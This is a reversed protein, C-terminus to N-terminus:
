LGPSDAKQVKLTESDLFLGYLCCTGRPPQAPLSSLVASHCRTFCHCYCNAAPTPLDASQFWSEVTGGEQKRTLIACRPQLGPGPTPAGVSVWVEFCSLKEKQPASFFDWVSCTTGINPKQPRPQSLFDKVFVCLPVM